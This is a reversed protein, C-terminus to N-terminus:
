APHERRDGPVGPHRGAAAWPFDAMAVNAHSDADQQLEALSPYFAEREVGKVAHDIWRAAKGGEIRHRETLYTRVDIRRCIKCWRGDCPGTKNWSRTSIREAFHTFRATSRADHGDHTHTANTLFANAGFAEGAVIRTSDDSTDHPDILAVAGSSVIFMRDAPQGSRFFTFGPPVKRLILQQAIAALSREPLHEFLRARRVDRLTAEADHVIVPLSVPAEYRGLGELDSRARAVWESIEPETLGCRQALYRRTEDSALRAATNSRMQPSSEVLDLYGERPLM